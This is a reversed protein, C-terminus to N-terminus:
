GTLALVTVFDRTWGSQYQDAPRNQGPVEASLPGGPTPAVDAQVWEPNIDLQMAVVAGSAVLADALDIPVTSMSAAYLLDGAADEGLASRAVNAGGGLTAGWATWDSAQPVPAGGSVLPALNQRVSAVQTGPSRFGPQGWVGISGHGAADIVFSALGPQLATLVQGGVEVGGAGATVKFGGNFAALLSPAETGGVAAQADAPLVASGVPPDETGVHLDFHVQGARFRIIRVTTGDPVTVTRGDVAVGSPESALVDWGPQAPVTTTTTTSSPAV